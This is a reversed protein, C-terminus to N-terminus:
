KTRKSYESGGEGAAQLEDGLVLATGTTETEKEPYLLYRRHFSSTLHREFALVGVGTM